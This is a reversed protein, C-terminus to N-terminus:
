EVACNFVIRFIMVSGAKQSPSFRIRFWTILKKRIAVKGDRM